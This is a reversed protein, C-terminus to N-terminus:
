SLDSKPSPRARVADVVQQLLKLTAGAQRELRAVREEVNSSQIGALLRSVEAAVEPEMAVRSPDVSFATAAVRPPVISALIEQATPV